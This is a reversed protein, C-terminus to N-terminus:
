GRREGMDRRIIDTMLFTIPYAVVAAPVTLGFVNVIKSAVVNSIVLSVLFFGNLMILNNTNKRM